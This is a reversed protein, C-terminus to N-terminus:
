LAQDLLSGIAEATRTWSYRAAHRMNHRQMAALDFPPDDVTRCAQGIAEAWGTLDRGNVFQLWAGGAIEVLAEATSSVCLAGAQMGEILPLGFGEYLSPMLVIAADGYLGHLEENSVGRRLDIAPDTRALAELDIGSRQDVAPAIATLTWGPPVDARQWAEIAMAFNKHQKAAGVILIRKAKAPPNEPDFAPWGAHDIGSLCNVWLRVPGVLREFERHSFRSVFALGRADRQLKRFALRSLARKHPAAPFLDSNLHLVDHVTAVFPRRWRLPVFYNTFWTLDYGAALPELAWQERPSFPVVDSAITGLNPQAAFLGQAEAERAVPVIVDFHHHPRIAALRPLTTAIYRGIGSGWGLRGDVLIRALWWGKSARGRIGRRALSRAEAPCGRAAEVRRIERGGGREPGAMREAGSRFTPRSILPMNGGEEHDPM